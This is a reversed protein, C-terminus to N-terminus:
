ILVLIALYVINLLGVIDDSDHATADAAREELKALWEAFPVALLHSGLANNISSFVVTWPIPRPHVLNIVEPLSKSSLVLDVVTHSAVDVPLWDVVQIITNVM